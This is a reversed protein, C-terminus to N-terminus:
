GGLKEARRSKKIETQGALNFGLIKEKGGKLFELLKKGNHDGDYTPQGV